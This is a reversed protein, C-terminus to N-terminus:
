PQGVGKVQWTIQNDLLPPMARYEKTCHRRAYISALTGYLPHAQSDWAPIPMRFFTCTDPCPAGPLYNFNGHSITCPSAHPNSPLFSPHRAWKSLPHRWLPDVYDVDVHLYSTSTGEPLSGESPAAKEVKQLPAKQSHLLM